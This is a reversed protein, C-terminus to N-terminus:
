SVREWNMWSVAYVRGSNSFLHTEGTDALLERHKIRATRVVMIDMPPKQATGEPFYDANKVYSKFPEIVIPIPENESQM